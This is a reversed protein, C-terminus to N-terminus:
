LPTQKIKDISEMIIIIRIHQVIRSMIFTEMRHLHHIIEAEVEKPSDSASSKKSSKIQYVKLM